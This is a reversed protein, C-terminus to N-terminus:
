SPVATHGYAHGTVICGYHTSRQLRKHQRNGVVKQTAGKTWATIWAASPLAYKCTNQLYFDPLPHGTDTHKHDNRTLPGHPLAQRSGLACHTPSSIGFARGRVGYQDSPHM